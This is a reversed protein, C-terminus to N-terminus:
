GSLTALKYPTFLGSTGRGLDRDVRGCEAFGSMINLLSPFNYTNKPHCSGMDFAGCPNPSNDRHTPSSAESTSIAATKQCPAALDM